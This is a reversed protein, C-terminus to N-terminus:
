DAFVAQYLIGSLLVMTVVFTGAGLALDSIAGSSPLTGGPDMYFTAAAMGTYHMGCVAGAMVLASLRIQSTRRLNFALYLAATAAVVAILFSLAVLARDYVVTAGMRMAAMGAYHMSAVGLGMLIGGSALRGASTVGSSVIWLAVGTVAVAILLSAATLVLDYHVTMGMDFALMGIFHMSWIAGGGMALAAATLWRWNTGAAGAVRQASYIATLSGTASVLFSIAILSWEWRGSIMETGPTMDM